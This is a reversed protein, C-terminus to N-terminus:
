TPSIRVDGYVGLIEPSLQQRRDLQDVSDARVVCLSERPSICVVGFKPDLHLGVLGPLAQVDTLQQRSPPLRLKILTAM